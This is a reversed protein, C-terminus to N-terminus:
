AGHDFSLDLRCDCENSYPTSPLSTDDERPRSAVNKHANCWLFNAKPNRIGNSREFNERCGWAITSVHYRATGLSPALTDSILECRMVAPLAEPM